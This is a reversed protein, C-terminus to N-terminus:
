PATDPQENEPIGTQTKLMVLFFNIEQQFAYLFTGECKPIKKDTMLFEVFSSHLM